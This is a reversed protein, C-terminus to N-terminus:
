AVRGRVRRMFAELRSEGEVSRPRSTLNGGIEAVRASLQLQATTKRERAFERLKRRKAALLEPVPADPRQLPVTPVECAVPPLEPELRATSSTASASSVTVNSAPLEKALRGGETSREGEGEPQESSVLVAKVKKFAPPDMSDRCMKTYTSGDKRTAQQPCNNACHTVKALLSAHHLVSTRGSTVLTALEESALHDRAFAKAVADALRNARWHVVTLIKGTRRVPHGIMAATQHAPFWALATALDVFKNDLAVNIAVWVRALVRSPATAAAFGAEATDLLGKCDTIIRPLAVSHSIAMLLAWAEAAAATNCWPPPVGGGFALLGQSRSHVVVSYGTARWEAIDRHFMSGDIYWTVDDPFCDTSRWLSQFSAQREPPKPLRLVLLGREILLTRRRADLRSICASTGKPAAPWGGTPATLKCSFRHAITGPEELCLQCRNDKLQWPRVAFKRTQTWQGGSVASILDGRHQPEWLPAAKPTGKAKCLGKLVDAFDIIFSGDCGTAPRCDLAEPILGPLLRGIKQLRWNRVSRKGAQLIIAPSDMNFSWRHGLHDFAEEASPVAWGVRKLSLLLGAMPGAIKNWAVHKQFNIAAVTCDFAGTLIDPKFWAEWWAYCWHRLGLVVSDFAPDLTGSAGDLVWLTVDVQRGQAPPSAASCVASRASELTTDAVGMIDAGYCIAPTAAARAMTAVNVGSRRLRQFRTVRKKFTKLRAKAVKTSRRRGAAFDVGLLKTSAVAKVVKVKSKKCFAKALAARGAVAVSKKISVEMGLHDELFAKAQRLAGDMVAMCHGAKGTVALTLDDVYLKINLDDGWVRVLEWVMEILLLRLESTAFGSGATIGRTAQVLEAFIGDAGVARMLRYAALSLKLLRKPYGLRVGAEILKSHPIMEFAKVLDLLAAIHELNRRSAMEAIFAAEWAARQAGMGKGGFIQPLANQAEWTRALFVRSRMWLRVPSPFLGIPRLGGDAKALLCILVLNLVETWEGTKEFLAFLHALARLGDDSLRCVARPSVNDAGLGTDAPFTAAAAAIAWTGLLELPEDDLLDTITEDYEDNVKWLAAWQDSERQVAAQDALPVPADFIISSDSRAAEIESELVDDFPNCDQDDADAGEGLVQENLRANGKEPPKWGVVGKSWRYALKTPVSAKGAVAPKAGSAVMWKEKKAKIVQKEIVMAKANAVKQLSTVWPASARRVAELLSITWANVMPQAKVREKTPLSSTVEHCSSLQHAMLTKRHEPLSTVGVKLANALDGATKGLTRWAVSLRSAGAWQKPAAGSAPKWVFTPRKFELKTGALDQFESRADSFWAVTADEIGESGKCSFVKDYSPPRNPPGFPLTGAVKGPRQLQRVMCRKGNGKLLLRSAYHPNFGCDSIRQVGAVLHRISNHVVFYDYTSFNCTALSTAVISGKVMKPWNSDQLVSPSFNWDGACVWPGDISCLIGGVVELLTMNGESMGESDKPWLSVIHVGGKCVAAVWAVGIRHEYGAPVLKATLDEMPQGKRAFIGVGGSGRAAATKHAMTLVPNWGAARAALTAGELRDDTIIKSEQSAVVDASSRTLVCDELTEWCNANATDVAFLGRSKWQKDEMTTSMTIGGFIPGLRNAKLERTAFKKRRGDAHRARRARRVKPPFDHFVLAPEAIGAAQAAEGMQQALAGPPPIAEDLCLTTAVKGVDAGGDKYYGLGAPGTKFVFDAVQGSFAKAPVFEKATLNLPPRAQATKAKARTASFKTPTANSCLKLAAEAERWSQLHEDPLGVDGFWVPTGMAGSDPEDSESGAADEGQDVWPEWCEGDTDCLPPPLDDDDEEPWLGEPSDLANVAAVQMAASEPGPNKAEGVRQGAFLFLWLLLVKAWSSRRKVARPPRGESAM